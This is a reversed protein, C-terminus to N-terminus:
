PIELVYRTESERGRNGASDIPILDVLLRKRAPLVHNRGCPNSYLSYGKPFLFLELPPGTPAGDETEHVRALLLVPSETAASPMEFEVGRGWSSDWRRPVIAESDAVRILSPAVRDPEGVVTWWGQNVWREDSTGAQWRMRFGVRGRPLEPAVPAVIVYSLYSDGRELIRIPFVREPSEDAEDTFFEASDASFARIASGAPGLDGQIVFVANPPIEGPAPFLSHHSAM